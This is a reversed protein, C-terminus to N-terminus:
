QCDIVWNLVTDALQQEYEKYDHTADGLIEYECKKSCKAKEKIMNMIKEIPIILVDDKRGMVTFIPQLIQSLIKFEDNQNHFNLVGTEANDDFFNVYTNASLCYEDWVKKPILDNGRGESIMNKAILIGKNFIEKKERILGLMDAPSLLILSKIREDQSKGLYYVVKPVGLSHGMLHINTFGQNELFDVHAKIDLICEEFKEYVNGIVPYQIKDNIKRVFTSMNGKGRNNFPCFAVNNETLTKALFDLFNNEYFNGAMGHVHAVVTKSDSDPKYLLGHLELGDEAYIRQLSTKM